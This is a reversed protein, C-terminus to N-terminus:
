RACSCPPFPSLSLPPRLMAGATLASRSLSPRMAGPAAAAAAALGTGHGAFAGDGFAGRRVMVNALAFPLVGLTKAVYYPGPTYLRASIDATFHRRDAAYLSMYVYPQPTSPLPPTSPSLPPPTLFLPCARHAGVVPPRTGCTARLRGRATWTGAARVLLMFLQVVCFVLNIRNRAADLGDGLRWFILGCFVGVWTFLLMRGPPPNPHPPRAPEAAQPRSQGALCELGAAVVRPEDGGQGVRGIALGHVRPGGAVDAPNRM